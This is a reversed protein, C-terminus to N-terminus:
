QQETIGHRRAILLLAAREPLSSACTQRVASEIRYILNLGATFTEPDRRLVPLRLPGQRNQEIEASFPALLMLASQDGEKQAICSQLDRATFDLDGVMRRIREEKDVGAALPDRSLVLTTTPLLTSAGSSKGSAAAGELYRLARKYDALKFAAEGAGQLGDGDKPNLKVASGFQELAHQADGAELFLRGVEDHAGGDDPIDTSLVLLESLAQSSDGRDLLFRVLETRVSRRRTVAEESPWIGFLANHYYRIADSSAGDKASLRALSLNSEGNEPASARLRLLAERAEESHGAQALANALALAYETDDHDNTVASRFAEIAKETDGAKLRDQGTRYWRKATEVSAARSRAAM